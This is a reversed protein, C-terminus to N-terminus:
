PLAPTSNRIILKPRLMISQPELEGNLQALLMEVAKAGIDYKSVALTTLSPEMIAATLIDDVGIIAVDKPVSLNLQRCAQIAGIAVIDNYCILADIHQHTSLVQQASIFAHEIDPLCPILLTPDCALGNLALARKFAQVRKQGAESHSPGTIFGIHKCKVLSLHEVAQMMSFDEDIQISSVNLGLAARNYLVASRHKKVLALLQKDPLRPSCLILGDVRKEEFFQLTQTEREQDEDTNCLILSYGNKWAIDEAGRVVDPFFPNTIDPLMFGITLTQKTTLSRAITSPRYGLDQIIAKVRDKTADSIKGKNNVVRSVTMTSVGAQKAVDAITIRAM